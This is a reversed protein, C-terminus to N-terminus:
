PKKSISLCKESIDNNKFCESYRKAMEIRGKTQPHTSIYENADLPKEEGLAKQMYREMKGMISAFALPDMSHRVMHDFALKDARAEHDRSYHMNLLLSGLGVGMDAFGSLDGLAIMVSVSIFTGEILTTLSDRHVIHGVEHLLIADLEDTDACLQVFKDTLIIEGSPLAMANPLSLNGDKLLRFNLHYHFQEKQPLIPFLERKFHETIQMQQAKSLQSPKFLHDDLLKMTQD